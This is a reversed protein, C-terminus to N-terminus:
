DKWHTMQRKNHELVNKGLMAHQSLDPSYKSAPVTRGLAEAFSFGDRTVDDISSMMVVAPLDFAKIAKLAEQKGRKM